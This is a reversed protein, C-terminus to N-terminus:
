GRVRLVIVAAIYTLGGIAGLWAYPMGDGGRAIDVLFAVIVAVIVATGSIATAVLDIRTIREDRRDLLGRVTESRRSATVTVLATATMIGLGAVGLGPQGGAWAAALIVIGLLLAFAPTVWFTLNNRRTTTPM